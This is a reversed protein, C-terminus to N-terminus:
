HAAPREPLQRAQGQQFHAVARLDVIGGEARQSWDWRQAGQGQMATQSACVHAECGHGAQQSPQGAKVDAGAPLVESGVADGAEEMQMTELYSMPNDPMANGPM